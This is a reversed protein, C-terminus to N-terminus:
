QIVEVKQGAKFASINSSVVKESGNLGSAIESDTESQIGLELPQKSITGDEAVILCYPQGDQQGVASKPLSLADSKEGLILAINAYMGPRLKEAENSIVIETLLTRTGTSLAWSTRTVKGTFTSNGLSPVKITAPNGPSVLAADGEPVNLYVRVQQTDVLTFIPKGEGAEGSRILTGPDYNRSSIVGSFPARILLYDSMSRIREFDAEAIKLEAEIAAKDAKAKLLMAEAEGLKAEASKTKALVEDRNAEASQLQLKTEDALKNNVTQSAVLAAIRADESKWREFEANARKISAESETIGAKASVVVSNAISIAADAQEINARAKTVNAEKQQLEDILEPAVLQALLTGPATVNGQEDFKPGEVRDGIDVLLRELFGTIKAHIETRSFAQIEGPQETRQVLTKRQASVVSVKPLASSTVSPVTQSVPECGPALAIPLIIWLRNLNKLIYSKM